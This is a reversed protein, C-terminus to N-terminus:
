TTFNTFASLDVSQLTYGTNIGAAADLTEIMGNLDNIHPTLFTGSGAGGYTWFTLCALEDNIILFAPNGSDGLVKSEYLVQEYPQDPFRFGVSGTTFVNLDTVLAKEEQDFGLTAVYKPGTPFYDEYNPPLVKAPTISEPLDENLLYLALDPYFPSYNPHALRHTVTRTITENDSTVFRLVTGVPYWFHRALGVHRPTLATGAKRHGANSNWPSVCTLKESLDYAWCQPNRVYQGAAHSATFDSFIPLMDITAGQIRSNVAAECHHALTGEVFGQFEVGDAGTTRILGTIPFELTRQPSSITVVDEVGDQLSRIVTPAVSDQEVGGNSSVSIEPISDDADPRPIVDIMIVYDTAIEGAESIEHIRDQTTELTTAPTSVVRDGNAEISAEFWGDNRGWGFQIKPTDPQQAAGGTIIWAM